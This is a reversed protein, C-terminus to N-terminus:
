KNPEMLLALGKRNGAIKSQFWGNCFEEKTYTIKGHAPDAVYVTDGEIHYLVIFHKNNWHIICPLPVENKLTDFAVKVGMCNFGLSKLADHIALMSTGEPDKAGTLKVLYDRPYEKGYYKLIMQLCIPGCNSPKDQLFIPFEDWEREVMKGLRLLTNARLVGRLLETKFSICLADDETKVSLNSLFHFYIKQAETKARMAPLMTKLGRLVQVIRMNQDHDPSFGCFSTKEEGVAFILGQFKKPDFPFTPDSKFDDMAEKPLDFCGSLIAHYDLRSLLEAMKKNAYVNRKKGTKVEIIDKVGGEKGYVLMSASLFGLALKKEPNSPNLFSVIPINRYTSEFFSGTKGKIVTLLNKKQYQVSAIFAIQPDCPPKNMVVLIAKKLHKEM